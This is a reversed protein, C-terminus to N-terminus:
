RILYIWLIKPKFKNLDCFYTIPRILFYRNIGLKQFSPIQSGNTAYNARQALRLKSGNTAYNARQALRLKSGNTAYNAESRSAYNAGKPRTIQESRSAYNAGKPRTIPRAARPTIQERRDRLQGRQALRLKSGETAYNAIDPQNM